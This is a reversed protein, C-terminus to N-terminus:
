KRNRCTTSCYTELQQITFPKALFDDFGMALFTERADNFAYATLAIVPTHCNGAKEKERLIRIAEEGDMVPMKIDMFVLDFRGQELAELAAKGNGALTVKYGLKSLATSIYKTNVPNDEALLINCSHKNEGTTQLNQETNDAPALSATTLPLRLTFTSGAGVHSEVSISGGMLDSLKRCITLGLGTGGFRDSTSSDAQAFPEFIREQAAPAIGIGTDRVSMELIIDTGYHEVPQVNISIDGHETFKVANSLLNNLIQKIRLQDGSFLDPVSAPIHTRCNLGKALIRSKQMNILEAICNRISFISCNLEIKEAEIKSLDLIDNILSLLNNGSICISEVYDQQEESLTTYALLESMGIIGNLPTRIEHSMSSLFDSKARNASEAALKAALLEAQIHKIETIDRIEIIRVSRGLYQISKGRVAVPYETRDKRTGKAEYRLNYDIRINETITDKSDNSFLNTVERGILEEKTFGTMATLTDNCEVITGNEHMVIGGFSASSLARFREESAELLEQAHKRPTIDTDSGYYGRLNGNEDLIPIGNTSVYVIKGDRTELPNELGIFPRCQQFVEFAATKFEERGEAPHLDYFHKKGVIEEASFGLVKEVVRSIYTYLGQTDVEWDITRSIDSLKESFETRELTSLTKPNGAPVSCHAVPM